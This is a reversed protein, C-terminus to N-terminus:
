KRSSRSGSGGLKVRVGVGGVIDVTGGQTLRFLPGAEAFVELPQGEPMYTVGAITRIGFRADDGTRIQPGVGLYGGLRGNKPQAFLNWDHWLADGWLGVNGDSFGLGADFAFRDDIWMKGTAGIPEGLIVGVSTDGAAARASPALSLAALVAGAFLSLRKLARSSPCSRNMFDEQRVFSVFYLGVAELGAWFGGLDLEFIKM